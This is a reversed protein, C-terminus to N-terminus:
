TRTFADTPFQDISSGDDPRERCEEGQKNIHYQYQSKKWPFWSLFKSEEPLQVESQPTDNVFNNVHENALFSFCFNRTILDPIM